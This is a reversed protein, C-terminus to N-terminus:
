RARAFDTGWRASPVLNQAAWDRAFRNLEAADQLGLKSKINERHTEITKGSLHFQQAIDHTSVAM